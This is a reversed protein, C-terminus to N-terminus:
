SRITVVTAGDRGEHAEGPRFEEVLQHHTLHERVAQRLKGSGLGHIVRVEPIGNLSAQSLFPELLDLAEAVRLGILKLEREESGSSNL